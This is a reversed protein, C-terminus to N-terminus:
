KPFPGVPFDVNSFLKGDLADRLATVAGARTLIADPYKGWELFQKSPGYLRALANAAPKKWARFAGSTSKPAAEVLDALGCVYATILTRERHWDSAPVKRPQPRIATEILGASGDSLAYMMQNPPFAYGASTWQPVFATEPAAIVDDGSALYHLARHLSSNAPPIEHFPADSEGNIVTVIRRTSPDTFMSSPEDQLGAALGAASVRSADRVTTDTSHTGITVRLAQSESEALRSWVEELPVPAEWALYITAIAVVGFRHLHVEISPLIKGAVVADGWRLPVFHKRLAIAEKPSVPVQVTQEAIKSWVRSDVALNKAVPLEVNWGRVAKLDVLRQVFGEDSGLDIALRDHVHATVYSARIESVTIRM